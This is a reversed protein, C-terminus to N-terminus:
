NQLYNKYSQAYNHACSTYCAATKHGTSGRFSYNVRSTKDFMVVEYATAIKKMKTLDMQAVKADLLSFLLGTLLM